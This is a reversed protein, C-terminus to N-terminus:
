MPELIKANTRSLGAPQRKATGAWPPEERDGGRRAPHPGAIEPVSRSIPVALKPRVLSKRQRTFGSGGCLTFAFEIM